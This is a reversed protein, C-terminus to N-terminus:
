ENIVRICALFLGVFFIGWIALVLVLVLVLLILFFFIALIFLAFIVLLSVM